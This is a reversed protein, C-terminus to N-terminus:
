NGGRAANSCSYRDALAAAVCFAAPSPWCQKNKSIWSSVITDLSGRESGNWCFLPAGSPGHLEVNEVFGSIYGQCRPGLKSDLRFQENIVPGNRRSIAIRLSDLRRCYGWLRAGTMVDSPAGTTEAAEMWYAANPVSLAQMRDNAPFGATSGMPHPNKAASKLTGAGLEVSELKKTMRLVGAGAAEYGGRYASEYLAKAQQPDEKVDVGAELKKALLFQCEAVQASACSQLANLSIESAVVDSAISMSAIGMLLPCLVKKLDLLRRVVDTFSNMINVM